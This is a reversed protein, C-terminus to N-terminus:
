ELKTMERQAVDSLAIVDVPCGAWNDRWCVIIDCGKVDHKHQLFNGSLYEFEIRVPQWRGVGVRRLAECDPFGTQMHRVRFGLREALLGFVYIVGSESTPENTLGPFDIPEGVVGRNRLPIAVAGREEKSPASNPRSWAGKM